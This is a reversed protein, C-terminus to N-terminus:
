AVLSDAAADKEIEREIDLKIERNLAVVAYVWLVTIVLTVAIVYPATAALNACTLLLGQYVLSGGSKGLRSGIGDIVAKAKRQKAISLPIYAMEKTTDYVSYKSARTLSNQVGGVFISFSLLSSGWLDYIVDGLFSNQGFIVLPFFVLSTCLICVPTFLAAFRWGLHKIMQHTLFLGLVTAILGKYMTVQSLYANFERHNDGFHVKLQDTWLIDTLNFVLNYAVVIVSLCLLYKSQKVERFSEMLTFKPRNKKSSTSRSAASELASPKEAFIASRCTFRYVWFIAVTIIIGVAIYFSIMQEYEDAGGFSFQPMFSLTSFIMGIKGAVVASCNGAVNILAYLKAAQGVTTVENAFGWFLVSMMIPSWIETLLYFLSLHWFRIMSIFGAAGAPLLSELLEPLRVLTLEQRYPFLFFVFLVFFSLFIAIFANFTNERSFNRSLLAVLYTFLFAMPVVGWVKLFPIVEAGTHAGVVVMTM